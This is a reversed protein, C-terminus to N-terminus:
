RGRGPKFGRVKPETALVSVVLGGLACTSCMEIVCIQASVVTTRKQILIISSLSFQSNTELILALLPKKARRDLPLVIRPGVFSLTPGGQYLLHLCGARLGM